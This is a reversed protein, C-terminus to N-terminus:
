TYKSLLKLHVDNSSSKIARILSFHLGSNRFTFKENKTEDRERLFNTSNSTIIVVSWLQNTYDHISIAQSSHHLPCTIRTSSTVNDVVQLSSIQYVLFPDIYVQEHIEAGGGPFPNWRRRLSGGPLSSGARKRTQLECYHCHKLLRKSKGLTKQSNKWALRMRM